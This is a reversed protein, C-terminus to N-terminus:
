SLFALFAILTGLVSNCPRRQITSEPDSTNLKVISQRNVLKVLANWFATLWAEGVKSTKESTTLLLIM